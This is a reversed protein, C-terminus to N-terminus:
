IMATTPVARAAIPCAKAGTSTSIKLFGDM